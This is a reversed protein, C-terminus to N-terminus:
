ARHIGHSGAHFGYSGAPLGYSGASTKMALLMFGYDGLRLEFSGCPSGYIPQHDRDKSLPYHLNSQSLMSDVTALLCDMALLM